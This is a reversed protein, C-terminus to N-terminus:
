SSGGGPESGEGTAEKGSALAKCVGAPCRKDKVHALYEDRFYRVTSLVPNPLTRGLGCMSAAKIAESLEVLLDVDDETGDGGCIRELIGLLAASGDRCSTCKGCSEGSTFETFFRAVDVVCTDEDMVIMGGSGMVSGAEALREYDVPLDVLSAPLCGGSPGGTQIAKLEKDNPIGGGMDFIIERLPTGMEVEVLGTNRINGALSFVKTGRSSETGMSAFWSSGREIIAPVTAWTEVNNINTPVGYLGSRTPYPPRQRPEPAVGEISAMLSTEEGCVFAGAGQRLHLEFALDSGLIGEGLLGRERCQGVALELAERARPYEERIYVYGEGAGVARAGILLGELLSHPDAEIINRDVYAGPNGEDANCILCKRDGPSAACLGWKVGTPFGGGGRGRLGSAKIEEIIIDPSMVSLAKALAGYGGRAIYDDICGPDIFGRNRLTVLKQRSFLAECDAGLVLDYVPRREVLHEKVIRLAGVETVDGYRVAPAGDLEVTVLPERSCLGGCGSTAVIVGETGTGKVAERVARLVGEAGAAVGCTGMHVTIRGGAGSMGSPESGPSSIGLLDNITLRSM